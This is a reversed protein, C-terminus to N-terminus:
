FLEGLDDVARVAAARRKATAGLNGKRSNDGPTSKSLFGFGAYFVIHRLFIFEAFPSVLPESGRSKRERMFFKHADRFSLNNILWQYVPHNTRAAWAAEADRFQPNLVTNAVAFAGLGKRSTDPPTGFRDDLKTFSDWDAFRWPGIMSSMALHERTADGKCS